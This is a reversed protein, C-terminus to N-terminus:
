RSRSRESGPERPPEGRGHLRQNAARLERALALRQTDPAPMSRVFREVAEGLERDKVASSLKLLKAQAVYLARIRAQRRTIADEWPQSARAGAFATRAAEALAARSVQGIGGEGRSHRERIRRLPGREAKRTLGRARRPTAEAAIGRDRLARALAQRWAELDAKKPNLREGGDGMARIALHVHPRPTDTHLVAVYAFRGGLAEHAFAHAADRLRLPDTGAPMSLVVSLSLPGGARRGRAMGAWSSWDGALEAVEGRGLVQGGDRDQAELEGRRTIYKLHAALHAGERTRGTIKVMVEPARAALRALRARIAGSPDEPRLITEPRVRRPRVPPRWVDEFGSVM